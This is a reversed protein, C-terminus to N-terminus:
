PEDTPTVHSAYITPAAYPGSAAMPAGPAPAASAAMSANLATLKSNMEHLSAGPDSAAQIRKSQQKLARLDTFFGM